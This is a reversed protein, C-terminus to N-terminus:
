SAARPFERNFFESWEADTAPKAQRVESDRAALLDLAHRAEMHEAWERCAPCMCYDAHYEHQSLSSERPM